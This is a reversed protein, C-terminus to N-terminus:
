IFVKDYNEHIECHNSFLDEIKKTEHKNAKQKIQKNKKKNNNNQKLPFINYFLKRM